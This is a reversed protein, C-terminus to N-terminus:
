RFSKHPSSMLQVKAKELSPIGIDKGTRETKGGPLSADM